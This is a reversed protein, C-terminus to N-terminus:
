GLRLAYVEPFGRGRIKKKTKKNDYPVYRVEISKPDSNWIIYKASSEGDRPQGVSGCNVIYRVGNELSVTERGLKRRSVTEGDYSVLQLKHTHGVFVVYVDLNELMQVVREDDQRYLYLFVNDRPFGHVFYAGDFKISFPLGRCFHLNEESLLEKTAANNEAAQFNLWRRARQDYLAYEHNGLISVFGSMRLFDVVKDPEPGYGINDGLSIVRDVTVSKLDKEVAQLADFNGHIDTLVAVRM